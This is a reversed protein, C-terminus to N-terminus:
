TRAAAPECFIFFVALQANLLLERARQLKEPSLQRSSNGGGRQSVRDALVVTRVRLHLVLSLALLLATLILPGATALVLRSTFTFSGPWACQLLVFLGHTPDLVMTAAAEGDADPM